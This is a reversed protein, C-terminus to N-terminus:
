FEKLIETFEKFSKFSKFNLREMLPGSGALPVLMNERNSPSFVHSPDPFSFESDLQLNNRDEFNWPYPVYCNISIATLTFIYFSGPGCLM